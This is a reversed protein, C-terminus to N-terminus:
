EGRAALEQGGPQHQPWSLDFVLEMPAWWEDPNAEPAREQLTAMLRNWDASIPDDNVRRFDRVPDFGDDTEIYMFMRRGRLFIRMHHVGVERLRATVGPWVRQHHEKYSEVLAPDDKLCLTLGFTQM